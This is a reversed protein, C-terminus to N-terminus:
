TTEAKVYYQLATKGHNHFFTNDHLDANETAKFVCENSPWPREVRTRPARAALQPSNSSARRQTLCMALNSHRAHIPLLIIQFTLIQTLFVCPLVGVCHTM